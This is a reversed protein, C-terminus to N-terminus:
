QMIKIQPRTVTHKVTRRKILRAYVCIDSQRLYPFKLDRFSWYSM